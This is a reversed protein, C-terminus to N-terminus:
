AAYPRIGDISSRQVEVRAPTEEPEVRKAEQKQLMLKEDKNKQVASFIAIATWAPILSVGPILEGIGGPLVYKPYFMGSFILLTIFGSGLTLAVCISLAFGIMVGIPATVPGIVNAASGAIGLIFGGIGCGVDGAIQQGAICGLAGGAFTGPFMSIALIGASLAAQIGDIFLGFPVLIFNRM